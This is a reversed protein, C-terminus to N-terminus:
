NKDQYEHALLGFFLSDEYVGDKLYHNKLLGEEKFNFHKILKLSPINNPAILAEIRNLKMQNFGYDIIPKLAEKMYGKQKVEDTYLMYGLEARHHQTFWTHYGCWGIVKNSDKEILQFLLMLKNFMGFGRVAKQKEKEVDAAEICLLDMIEQDSKTTLILEYLEDTLKRLKLRETELYEFNM